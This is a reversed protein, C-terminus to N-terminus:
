FGSVPRTSSLHTPLAGCPMLSRDFRGLCRQESPAVPLACSLDSLLCQMSEYNMSALRLLLTQDPFMAFLQRKLEELRAHGFYAIARCMVTRPDEELSTQLAFFANNSSDQLLQAYPTLM